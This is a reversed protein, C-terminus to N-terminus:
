ITLDRDALGCGPNLGSSDKVVGDTPLFMKEQHQQDQKM